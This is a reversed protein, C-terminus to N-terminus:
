ESNTVPMTIMPAIASSRMALRLRAGYAAIGPAGALAATALVGLFAARSFGLVRTKLSKVKM